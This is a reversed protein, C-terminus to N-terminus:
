RNIEIVTFFRLDILELHSELNPRGSVWSYQSGYNLEDFSGEFLGGCCLCVNRGGYINIVEAITQGVFM